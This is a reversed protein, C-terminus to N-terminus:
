IVGIIPSHWEEPSAYFTTNHTFVKMGETAADYEDTVQWNEKSFSKFKSEFSNAEKLYDFNYIYQNEDESIFMYRGNVEIRDKFTFVFDNSNYNVFLVLQSTTGSQNHLHLIREPTFDPEYYYQFGLAAEKISLSFDYVGPHEEVGKYEFDFQDAPIVFWRYEESYDSAKEFRTSDADLRAWITLRSLDWKKEGEEEYRSVTQNRLSFAVIKLVKVTHIAVYKQGDKEGSLVINREGPKQSLFTVTLDEIPIEVGNYGVLGLFPEMVPEQDKFYESQPFNSMDVKCNANPQDVDGAPFKGLIPDHWRDKDAFFTVGNVVCKFGGAESGDNVFYDYVHGDVSNSQFDSNFSNIPKFYKFNYVHKTGNGEEYLYRGLNTIEEYSRIYTFNNESSEMFLTLKDNNGSQNALVLMRNPDFTFEDFFDFTATANGAMLTALYKGTMSTLTVDIEFQDPRLKVVTQYESFGDPREFSKAPENLEAWVTISNHDWSGDENKVLTQDRVDLHRVHYVKVPLTARYHVNGIEKIFEVVRNGTISFDYNIKLEEETAVKGNDYTFTIGSYNFKEKEIYEFRVSDDFSLKADVIEVETYNNKGLGAWITLPLFTAVTIAGLGIYAFMLSKKM